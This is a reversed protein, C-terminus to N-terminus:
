YRPAFYQAQALMGHLAPGGNRPSSGASDQQGEIGELMLKTVEWWNDCLLKLYTELAWNAAFSISVRATFLREMEKACCLGGDVGPCGGIELDPRTLLALAHASFDIAIAAFIAGGSLVSSHSTPHATAM